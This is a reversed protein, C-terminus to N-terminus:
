ARNARLFELAVKRLGANTVYYRAYARRVLLGGVRDDLQWLAEPETPVAPAASDAGMGAAVAVVAQAEVRLRQTLTTLLYRVNTGFEGALLEGAVVGLVGLAVRHLGKWGDVWVCDWARLVAPLPLTAYSAFLTMYWASAFM